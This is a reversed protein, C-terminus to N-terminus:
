NIKIKRSKLLEVFYKKNYEDENFQLENIDPIPLEDSKKINKIKTKYIKMKEINNECKRNPVKLNQPTSKEKLKKNSGASSNRKKDTKLDISNISRDVKFKKSKKSISRTKAPNSYQKNEDMIPDFNKYNYNKEENKINRFSPYDLGDNKFDSKFNESEYASYKSKIKKHSFCYNSSELLHRGFIENEDAYKEIKETYNQDTILNRNKEIFNNVKKNDKTIIKNLSKEKKNLPSKYQTIKEPQLELRLDKEKYNNIDKFENMFNNYMKYTNYEQSLPKAPDKFVFLKEIMVKTIELKFFFSNLIVFFLQVTNFMGGCNSLIDTIKIYSRAYFNQSFTSIIDISFFYPDSVRINRQDSSILALNYDNEYSFDPMFYGWDTNIYVLDIGYTYFRYSDTKPLYFYDEKFSYSFPNYFDNLGISLLPYYFSLYLRKNWITDDIEKQSKCIGGDTNNQCPYVLIQFYTLNQEIWSGYIFQNENLDPCIYRKQIIHDYLLKTKNNEKEYKPFNSKQCQNLKFSTQKYTKSNLSYKVVMKIKLISPDIFFNKDGDFIQFYLLTENKVFEITNSNDMTIKEKYTKPSKKYFIDSGSFWAYLIMAIITISTFYGGISSKINYQGNLHLSIPHAFIDIKEM